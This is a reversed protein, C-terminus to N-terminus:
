PIKVMKKAQWSAGFHPLRARGGARPVFAAVVGIPVSSAVLLSRALYSARLAVGWLVHRGFRCTGIKAGEAELARARRAVEPLSSGRSFMPFDMYIRAFLDPLPVHPLGFHNTASLVPFHPLPHEPLLHETRRAGHGLTPRQVEWFLAM